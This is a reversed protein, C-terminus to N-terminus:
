IIWCSSADSRMRAASSGTKSRRANRVWRRMAPPSRCPSAAIVRILPILSVDSCIRSTDRETTAEPPSSRGRKGPQLGCDVPPVEELAKPTRWMPSRWSKLIPTFEREIERDLLSLERNLAHHRHAPLTHILNLIMARLRRVVQLNNSGCRRIESFALNVFDEWNPTRLM